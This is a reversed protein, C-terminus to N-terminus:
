LIICPLGTIQLGRVYRPIKIKIHVFHDGNGYNNLRPIGRNALKIRHHSQVGAPIQPSSFLCINVFIGGGEGWWLFLMVKLM